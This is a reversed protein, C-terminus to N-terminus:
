DKLLKDVRQSLYRAGWANWHSADSLVPKGEHLLNSPLYPVLDIWQVTPFHKAVYHRVRKAREQDAYFEKGDYGNAREFQQLPIQREEAYYTRNRSSTVRCMTQVMVVQKGDKTLRELTRYLMPFFEPLSAYEEDGWYSSLIVTACQAYDTMVAKYRRHVFAKDVMKAPLVEEFFFPASVGGYGKGHWHERKGMEGFFIGLHGAHSDGLILVQLPRTTDGLHRTTDAENFSFNKGADFYLAPHEIGKKPLFHLSGVLAFPLVYLTLLAWRFQKYHRRCPQEVFYYSLCSLGLCLTVYGVFWSPTLSPAGYFYRYIALLLWHWLYLSYSLKGVWVLPQWSLWRNGNEAVAGRWIVVGVLLAIGLTWLGPFFPPRMNLPVALAVGLGLVALPTLWRSLRVNHWHGDKLKMALVSGVLMEPFRLHPFYYCDWNLGLKAPAVFALATGLVILGYLIAYRRQHLWKTRLLLFLLLPFIFYFQEEVSLSWLHLFPKEEFHADFYGYGRMFFLNAMFVCSAIASTWGNEWDEPLFTLYAVGLGTLLVLFFLPLIRKIRRLYFQTFRFKGAAMEGYIIATILFGSIVFFIDVGLFGQPLATNGLVHFLIVAVVAVGRLGDIDRRYPLTNLSSTM